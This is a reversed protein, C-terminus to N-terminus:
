FIVHDQIIINKNKLIILKIKNEKLQKDFFDVAEQFGNFSMFLLKNLTQLDLKTKYYYDVIINNQQLKLEFDSENKILTLEYEEDLISLSYIKEKKEVPEYNNKNNM